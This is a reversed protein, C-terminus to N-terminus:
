LTLFFVFGIFHLDGSFHMLNEWHTYEADLLNKRCIGTVLQVYKKWFKLTKWSTWNEHIFNSIPETLTLPMIFFAGKKCTTQGAWAAGWSYRYRPYNQEMSLCKCFSKKSATYTVGGCTNQFSSIPVCLIHCPRINEVCACRLFSTLELYKVFVKLKECQTKWNKQLSFVFYKCSIRKWKLHSVFWLGRSWWFFTM